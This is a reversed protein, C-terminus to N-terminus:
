FQEREGCGALLTIWMKIIVYELEMACCYCCENLPRKELVVQTLDCWFPLRNQVKICIFIIPPLPMLQVMHLDNAGRKQCIVLLWALM